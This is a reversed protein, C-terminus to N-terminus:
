KKEPIPEPIASQKITHSMQSSYTDDDELDEMYYTQNLYREMRKCADKKNSAWSRCVEEGKKYLRKKFEDLNDETPWKSTLFELHNAMSYDIGQKMRRIMKRHTLDEPNRIKKQLTRVNNSDTISIIPWDSPITYDLRLIRGYQYLSKWYGM